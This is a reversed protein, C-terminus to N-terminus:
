HNLLEHGAMEPKANGPETRSHREFLKAKFQHELMSLRRSAATVTIHGAEAARTLNGMEAARVFLALSDIDPFM